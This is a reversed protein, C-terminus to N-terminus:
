AGHKNKTLFMVGELANTNLPCYYVAKYKWKRLGNMIIMAYITIDLVTPVIVIVLTGIMNLHPLKILIGFHIGGSIKAVTHIIEEQM